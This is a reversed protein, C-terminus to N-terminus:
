VYQLWYQIQYSLSGGNSSFTGPLAGTINNDAYAIHIQNSFSGAFPYFNLTQTTVSCTQLQPVLAIYYLGKSYVPGLTNNAYLSVPSFNMTQIGTASTPVSGLTTILTGAVSNNSALAAYLGAVIIGSVSPTSVNISLSQIQCNRNVKFLSATAGNLNLTISSYEGPLNLYWNSQYFMTDGCDVASGAVLDQISVKQTIGQSVIPVCDTASPSTTQTLQSIPIFAM